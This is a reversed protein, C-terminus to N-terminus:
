LRGLRGRLLERQKQFIYQILKERDTKSIETYQLAIRYSVENKKKVVRETRVVEGIIPIVTIPRTPLDIKLKLLKGEKFNTSAMFRVGSGSINITEHTSEYEGRGVMAYMLPIDGDVRIHNRRQEIVAKEEQKQIFLLIKKQHDPEIKYFNLATIFYGEKKKMKEVRVVEGLAPILLPEKLSLKIRLELIDGTRLKRNTVFRLGSESINIHYTTEFNNEKFLSYELVISESVRSHDRRDSM